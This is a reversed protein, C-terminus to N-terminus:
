NNQVGLLYVIKRVCTPVARKVSQTCDESFTNVDESEIAFIIIEDPLDMGLRRGLEIVASFNIGHTSDTHRSGRLSEPSFQYIQGPKGKKTKISDVILARDYGILLELLNLGGLETELITVDPRNIKPKLERAVRLGVGDDRLIPNGLGLVLTKMKEFHCYKRRERANFRINSIKGCNLGKTL